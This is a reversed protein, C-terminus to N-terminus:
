MPTKPFAWGPLSNKPTVERSSSQPAAAVRPFCPWCSTPPCIWASAAATLLPSPAQKELSACPTPTESLINDALAMAASDAHLFIYIPRKGARRIRLKPLGSGTVWGVGLSIFATLAGASLLLFLVGIIRGFFTVPYADGYGVTTMTVLSYWLAQGLSTISAGADGPAASEAAILLCLLLFYVALAGLVLFLRRKKM